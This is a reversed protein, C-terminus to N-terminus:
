GRLGGGAHPCGALDICALVERRIVPDDLEGEILQLCAADIVESPQDSCQETLERLMHKYVPTRRLVDPTALPFLPNM